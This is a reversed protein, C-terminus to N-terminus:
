AYVRMTKEIYKSVHHEKYPYNEWINHIDAGNLDRHNGRLKETDM